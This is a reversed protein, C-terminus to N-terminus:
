LIFRGSGKEVMGEEEEGGKTEEREGPIFACLFYNTQSCPKDNWEGKGQWNMEMCQGDGSPQRPNQLWSYYNMPSGDTWLYRHPQLPNSVTFGGLWIRPSNRSFRQAFVDVNENELASHISILHAKGKQSHCFDEASQFDLEEKFHKVCKSGLKYWTSHGPCHLFDKVKGSVRKPETSNLSNLVMASTGLLMMALIPLVKMM